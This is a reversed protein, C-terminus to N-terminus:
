SFPLRVDGLIQQKTITVQQFLPFIKVIAWKKEKKLAALNFNALSSDVWRSKTLVCGGIYVYQKGIHQEFDEWFLKRDQSNQINLNRHLRSKFLKFSYSYTAPESTKLLIGTTLRLYIEHIVTSVIACCCISRMFLTELLHANPSQVLPFRLKPPTLCLGSVPIPNLM